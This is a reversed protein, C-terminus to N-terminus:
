WAHRAPACISGTEHLVDDTFFETEPWNSSPQCRRNQKAGAGCRSGAVLLTENEPERIARKGEEASVRPAQRAMTPGVHGHRRAQEVARGSRRSSSSPARSRARGSSRRARVGALKRKAVGLQGARASAWAPAVGPRGPGAFRMPPSGITVGM